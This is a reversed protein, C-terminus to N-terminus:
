KFNEKKPGLPLRGVALTVPLPPIQRVFSGFASDAM